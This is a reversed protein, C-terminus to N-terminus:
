GFYLSYADSLEEESMNNLYDRVLEKLFDGDSGIAAFLEEIQASTLETAVATM